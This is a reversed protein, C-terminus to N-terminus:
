QREMLEWAREVRLEPNVTVVKTRMWEHVLLPNM